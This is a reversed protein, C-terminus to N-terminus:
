NKILTQEKIASLYEKVKGQAEYRATTKYSQSTQGYASEGGIMLAEHATFEKDPDAGANILIEVLQKSEDTQMAQAVKFLAASLINKLQKDHNAELMPNKLADIANLIDQDDVQNTLQLLIQKQNEPLITQMGLIKNVLLMFGIIFTSNSIKLDIEKVLFFQIYIALFDVIM